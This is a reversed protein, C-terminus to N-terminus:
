ALDDDDSESLYGLYMERHQLLYRCDINDGTHVGPPRGYHCEASAPNGDVCGHPVRTGIVM